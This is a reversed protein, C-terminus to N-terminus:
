FTEHQIRLRLIARYFDFNRKMQLYMGTKETFAEHGKYLEGAHYILYEGSLDYQDEEPVYGQKPIEQAIASGESFFGDERSIIVEQEAFPDIYNTRPDQEPNDAEFYDECDPRAVGWLEQNDFQDSHEDRKVHRHEKIFRHNPDNWTRPQDELECYKFTLQRSGCGPCAIPNAALDRIIFNEYEMYVPPVQMQEPYRHGNERCHMYVVPVYDESIPILYDNPDISTHNGAVRFQGRWTLYESITYLGRRSETINVAM